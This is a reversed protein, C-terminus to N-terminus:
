QVAHMTLKCFIQEGGKMMLPRPAEDSEKAVFESISVEMEDKVSGDQVVSIKMKKTQMEEVTMMVHNQSGIDFEPTTTVFGGKLLNAIETESLGTIEAQQAVPIKKDTLGKLVRKYIFQGTYGDEKRAYSSEFEKIEDGAMPIQCKVTFGAQLFNSKGIVKDILVSLVVPFSGIDAKLTKLSKMTAVSAPALEKWEFALKIRSDELRTGDKKYLHYDQAATDQIIDYIYCDKLGGIADNPTWFDSDTIFCHVKQFLTYVPFAMTEENWVPNAADEVVKTKYTKGLYGVRVEVFPDSQGSMDENPLNSASIVKVRLLGIPPPGTVVWPKVGRERGAPLGFRNPLVFNSSIAGDIARFIANRIPPLEAISAVGTLNFDITPPDPMTIGVGAMVPYSDMIPGWDALIEAKIKINAVGVHFGAVVASIEQGSDWLFPLVTRLRDSHDSRSQMVKKTEIIRMQGFSPPKQGITFSRLSINFAGPLTKNVRPIVENVVIGEALKSLVPWLRKAFETITSASVIVEEEALKEMRFTDLSLSGTGNAGNNCCGHCAGM